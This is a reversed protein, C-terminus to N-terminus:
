AAVAEDAPADRGEQAAALLARLASGDAPIPMAVALDRLLHQLAYDAADIQRAAAAQLTRVRAMGAIAAMITATARQWHEELSLRAPEIMQLVPAPARLQLELRECANWLAAGVLRAYAYHRGLTILRLMLHRQALTAHAFAASAHGRTAYLFAACKSQAALSLKNALLSLPKWTEILV